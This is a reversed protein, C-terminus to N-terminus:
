QQVTVLVGKQSTVGGITAVLAADGNAVAPVTVNFQYLGAQVLGAYQVTATQGGITVQVDNALPTASAIQQGTLEPPNSPGFGVAYLQIIEGPKAPTSAAGSILNPPGVLSYDLHLAAVHSGDLTLFAPSFQSKQATVANSAQGATTVQVQVPGVTADDPALVNIQTPSIYDIYAPIGNITVSVGQLSTPLKGNVIDAAQWTYTRQSLNTGFIALWAGSAIGPQFSGANVVATVTGAAQTGQVVLTVAVTVPTISPDTAAINVTTMYTGAALNAPNVSVSLTGPADGSTASLAAWFASSSATWSLAGTGGNTISLDQSAPAAGGATYQFTLAQPAIALSAPVATVTLTVVISVPTNAAGSAAIQVTGTYTGASMGAPSVSVTLTSPATGSADSVSLWTASATSTWSLTGTGGNAIQISQSAPLAGGSAYAFQLSSPTVGISSAGAVMLGLTDIGTSATVQLTQMGSLGAPLKVSIATSAWSTVTLAQATSSGAPTVSVQCGSCQSGFNAGTVTITTGATVARGTASTSLPTVSFIAAGLKCRVANTYGVPAKVTGCTITGLSSSAASYIGSGFIFDTYFITGSDGGSQMQVTGWTAQTLDSVYSANTNQVAFFMGGNGVLYPDSTPATGISSWATTSALFSRVIQSTLHSTSTVNAIGGATCNFTGWNTNTFASPDVHCYPVIRTLAANQSVFGMSASTLSVLGDSANNLLTSSSLNPSYTGANGIVAIADVGRLDDGFQNWTALNWLFASGPLMEASQSGAVITSASNGALFSGFNPTAILVLKRVLTSAPPQFTQNPQLGALYARAILGGMSFGILDFQPVQTGDSYKISNLFDSLDAALTEISQNPDELCNDFLYVSPVGDAVLYQALNGFTTASTTAVTCTGTFGTQWGNLLVVPPRTTGAPVSARPQVVVNLTTQRQEGTEGTASLTVSYEGPTAKSSPAILIGDQTENPAVVLGTAAQGKVSLQRSKARALFNLTEQPAQISAPEGIRVEYRNQSLTM